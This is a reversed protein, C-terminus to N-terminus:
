SALAEAHTGTFAEGALSNPFTQTITVAVYSGMAPLIPQAITFNVTKNQSSRGVVQGRAHNHGEVMVEIVQGLHRAYTRRQLERQHDLLIQLRRSKEEDPISDAM